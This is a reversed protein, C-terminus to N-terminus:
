VGYFVLDIAGLLAERHRALNAIPRTLDRVPLTTLSTVLVVYDEDKIRVVPALRRAEPLARRLALPAVVQNSGGATLESQLSVVYPYARHSTSVPNPFVDFQPM